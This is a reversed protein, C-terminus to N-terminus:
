AIILRRDKLFLDRFWKELWSIGCKRIGLQRALATCAHGIEEWQAYTLHPAARIAFDRRKRSWPRRKPSPRKLVYARISVEPIIIGKRERAAALRRRREIDAKFLGLAEQKIAEFEM